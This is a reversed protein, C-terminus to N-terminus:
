EDGERRAAVAGRSGASAGAPAVAQAGADAAREFPLALAGGTSRALKRQLRARRRAQAPEPEATGQDSLELARAFARVHHEYLKALELRVAPDDIEAALAEYDALARAKDGRAKAIDGRARRAAAGGGRDVAADALEAARDLAGAKRLTAAVGALDDGALGGLPEGYLGVLAVMALVDAANHEVVGLLAEEDGTRLFHAYCAVIEGGPVDGVRVRGLVEHELAILTRSRLRAKHIRRAVHVLDLHPPEPPPPLRNMVYRARLLPMDFAKGNYTIIMSAEALREALRRLIPEEEGLRRLLLQESIFGDSSPEGLPGASAAGPNFWALGVLFPVTGTGGALGTTETDLFLAKRVDCAALAPDLALLALMAPDADRAAVLPARGVRAAALSRTRSVYLPGGPTREVVFPLEGRAPDARPAIPAGRAVIRSIRDRLEDLSPRADGAVPPAAPASSAAPAAPVAPASPAAPVAPASPAAPAPRAGATAPLPGLRALKSKFSTM